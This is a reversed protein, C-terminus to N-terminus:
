GEQKLGGAPREIASLIRCAVSDLDFRKAAIAVGADYDAPSAQLAQSLARAFSAASVDVAVVGCRPESEILSKLDGVPMSVVPCGLKMADSFVLPISEIRSPILLWDSEAIAASAASSNLFGSLRIPRGQRKLSKVRAHVAAEMPGGGAIHVERLRLWGADDLRDLADLLLDIGKNPHWRGLFIVRYPAAGPARTRAGALQRTSPLFEFPLRAIAGADQALQLGDAFRGNAGRIVRALISRVLPLRGLSWIDSGLAWVSYPIGSSRALAAAAWGSPLVWLALVHKVRGDSDAALTQARLSSLTRLIDLWDGPRAPSLLSLPKGPSAFRTVKVNGPSAACPGVVRGPAVVRVPLQLALHGALDAVFAGAAESGDRQDPYSTTVILLTDRSV